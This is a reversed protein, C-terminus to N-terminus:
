RVALSLDKAVRYELASAKINGENDGIQMQKGTDIVISDDVPSWDARSYIDDGNKAGWCQYASNLNVICVNSQQRNQCVIILSEGNRSWSISNVGREYSVKKCEEPVSVEKAKPLHGNQPPYVASDGFKRSDYICIKSPDSCGTALYIGDTSWDVTSTADGIYQLHNGEMDMSLLSAGGNANQWDLVFVKRSVERIKIWQTVQYSSYGATISIVILGITILIWKPLKGKM